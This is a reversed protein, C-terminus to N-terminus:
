AMEDVVNGLYTILSFLSKTKVLVQSLELDSITVNYFHKYERAIKMSGQIHPKLLLYEYSIPLSQTREGFLSSCGPSIKKKAIADTRAKPCKLTPHQLCSFDPSQNWDHLCNRNINWLVYKTNRVPSVQCAKSIGKSDTIKQHWLM